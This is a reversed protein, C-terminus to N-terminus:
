GDRQGGVLCLGTGDSTYTGRSIRSSDGIAGTRPAFDRREVQHVTSGDGGLRQARRRSASRGQQGGNDGSAFRDPVPRDDSRFGNALGNDIHLSVFGVEGSARAYGEAMGIAVGEQVVMLYEMEPYEHLIGIFPAESTGPNGFIYKVGEARLMQMFAHKGQMKTAM